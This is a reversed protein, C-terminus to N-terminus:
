PIARTLRLLAEFVREAARRLFDYDLSDPTDTPQHYHPNRLFATDTVLLAPWGGEWFAGHDSLRALAAAETGRRVVVCEIPLSAADGLGPSHPPDTPRDTGQFAPLLDRSREDAVVALFDGQTSAISVGPVLTQTQATFGLMELSMM